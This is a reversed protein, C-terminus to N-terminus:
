VALCEALRNSRFQGPVLWVSRAHGDRFGTGEATRSGSGEVAVNLCYRGESIVGCSGVGAAGFCIGLNWSARAAAGVPIERGARSRAAGVLGGWIELERAPDRVGSSATAFASSVCPSALLLSTGHPPQEHRGARRPSLFLCAPVSSPPPTATAGFSISLASLVHPTTLSSAAV